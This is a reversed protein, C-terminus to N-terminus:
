PSPHHWECEFTESVGGSSLLTIRWADEGIDDVDIYFSVSGDDLATVADISRILQNSGDSVEVSWSDARTQPYLILLVQRAHNSLEVTLPQDGRTLSPILDVAQIQTNPESQLVLGLAVGVVLMAAMAAVSGWAVTFRRTLRNASSRARALEDRCPLCTALHEDVWARVDDDLSNGLALALIIEPPPHAQFVRWAFRTEQLASQCDRCNAVHQRFAQTTEPDASGNLLWPLQEFWSECTM